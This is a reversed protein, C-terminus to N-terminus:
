TYLSVVVPQAGLSVVSFQNRYTTFSMDNVTIHDAKTDDKDHMKAPNFSGEDYHDVLNPVSLTDM